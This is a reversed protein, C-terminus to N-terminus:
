EPAPLQGGLFRRHDGQAKARPDCWTSAPVQEGLTSTYGRGTRRRGPGRPGVQLRSPAAGKRTPDLPAVAPPASLANGVELGPHGGQGETSGEAGAAARSLAQECSLATGVKM